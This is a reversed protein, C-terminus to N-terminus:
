VSYLVTCYLVACYLVTCCLVTCYLVTAASILHYSIICPVLCATDGRDHDHPDCLTYESKLGYFNSGSDESLGRERQGLFGL